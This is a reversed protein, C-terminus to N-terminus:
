NLSTIVYHFEYNVKEDDKFKELLEDFPFINEDNENDFLECINEHLETGLVDPRGLQAGKEKTGRLDAAVADATFHARRIRHAPLCLEVISAAHDILGCLRQPCKVRPFCLRGIM